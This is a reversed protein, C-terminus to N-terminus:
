LKLGKYWINMSEIQGSIQTNNILTGGFLYGAKSFTVNMGASLSRAITYVTHYGEKRMLAEMEKLLMLSLNNGRFEPLTAFDTMEANLGAPDTEASSAAVLRDESFAGFYIVDERMTQKLYEEDHIPFPYTKFVTKYLEVLRKIDKEELVRLTLGEPFTLLTMGEKKGAAIQLNKDIRSRAELSLASRAHDVFRSMFVVEKKGGYFQPIRAERIYGNKEFAETKDAPVKSCIKTYHEKAALKELSELITPYDEQALKMLYIRDNFPGHQILSHDLKEVTDFM